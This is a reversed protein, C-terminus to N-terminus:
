MRTSEFTGIYKMPACVWVLGIALSKELLGDAVTLYQHRIGLNQLLNQLTVSCDIAPVRNLRCKISKPMTSLHRGDVLRGCDM